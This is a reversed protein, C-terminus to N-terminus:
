FILNSGNAPQAPTLERFSRNRTNYSKSSSGEAALNASRPTTTSQGPLRGVDRDLQAIADDVRARPTKSMVSGAINM